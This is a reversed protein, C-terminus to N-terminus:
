TDFYARGSKFVVGPLFLAADELEEVERIAPKAQPDKRLLMDRLLNKAAEKDPAIVHYHLFFNRGDNGAVLVKWKKM